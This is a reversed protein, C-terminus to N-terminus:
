KVLVPKIQGRYEPAIMQVFYIGPAVPTGDRDRGDWPVRYAGPTHNGSVLTHLHRGNVDYLAIEVPVVSGLTGAVDYNIMTTPNFPNPVNQSVAFEQPIDATFPPREPRGPM